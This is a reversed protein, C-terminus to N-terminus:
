HLNLREEAVQAAAPSVPFPQGLPHLFLPPQDPPHQAMPLLDRIGLAERASFFDIGPKVPLVPCIAQENGHLRRDLKGM